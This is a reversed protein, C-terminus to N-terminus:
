VFALSPMLNQGDVLFFLDKINKEASRDASSIAQFPCDIPTM